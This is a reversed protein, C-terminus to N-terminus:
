RTNQFAKHHPMQFDRTDHLPGSSITLREAAPSGAYTSSRRQHRRIMSSLAPEREESLLRNRSPQSQGGNRPAMRQAPIIAAASTLRGRIRRAEAIATLAMGGNFTMADCGPLITERFSRM